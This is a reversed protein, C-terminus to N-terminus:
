MMERKSTASVFMITDGYRLFASGDAQKGIKDIEISLTKNNIELNIKNNSM